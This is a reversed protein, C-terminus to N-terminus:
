HVDTGPFFGRSRRKSGPFSIGSFGDDLVIGGELRRRKIGPFSMGGVGDGLTAATVVIARFSVM